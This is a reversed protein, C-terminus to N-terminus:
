VTLSVPTRKAAARSVRAATYGAVRGEVTRAHKRGVTMYVSSLWLKFNIQVYIFKQQCTLRARESRECSRLPHRARARTAPEDAFLNLVFHMITWSFTIAASAPPDAARARHDSM